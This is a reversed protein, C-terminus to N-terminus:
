GEGWSDKKAAAIRGGFSSTEGTYPDPLGGSERLEMLAEAHNRFIDIYSSIIGKAYKLGNNPIKSVAVTAAVEALASSAIYLGDAMMLGDYGRLHTNVTELLKDVLADIKEAERAQSDRSRHANKLSM